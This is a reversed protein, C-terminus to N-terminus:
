LAWGMRLKYQFQNLVLLVEIIDTKGAIRILEARHNFSVFWSLIGCGERVCLEM